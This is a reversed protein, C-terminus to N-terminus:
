LKKETFKHFFVMIKQPMNEIKIKDNLGLKHILSVGIYATCM